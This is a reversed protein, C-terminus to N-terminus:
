IEDQACRQQDKGEECVIVEAKRDKAACFCKSVRWGSAISAVRLAIWDNRDDVANMVNTMAYATNVSWNRNAAIM